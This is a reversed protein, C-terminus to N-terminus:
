DDWDDDWHDEDDNDDDNDWLDDWDDDWDSVFPIDPISSTPVVGGAFSTVAALISAILAQINM